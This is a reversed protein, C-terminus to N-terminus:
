NFLRFEIAYKIVMIGSLTASGLFRNHPALRQQVIYNGILSIPLNTLFSTLGLSLAAALTSGWFHMDGAGLAPATVVMIIFLHRAIWLPNFYLMSMLMRGVWNLPAPEQGSRAFFRLPGATRTVRIRDIFRFWAPVEYRYLLGGILAVAVLRAFSVHGMILQGILDGVPYLFWGVLLTMVRTQKNPQSGSPTNTM